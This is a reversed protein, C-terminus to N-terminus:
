KEGVLSFNCYGDKPQEAEMIVAARFDLNEVVTKCLTLCGFRCPLKDAKDKGIRECLVQYVACGRIRYSFKDANNQIVELEFIPMACLNAIEIYRQPVLPFIGVGTKEIYEKMAIYTFDQHKEGEALSKLMLRRGFDSFFDQAKELIEADRQGKVEECFSRAAKVFDFEQTIRNVMKEDLNFAHPDAAQLSMRERM